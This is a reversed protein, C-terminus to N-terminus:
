PHIRYNWEGHFSNPELKVANLEEDPIKIGKEYQNEDM